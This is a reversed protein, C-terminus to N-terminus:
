HSTKKQVPGNIIQNVVDLPASGTIEVRSGNSSVQLNQVFTELGTGLRQTNNGSVAQWTNVLKAITAADQDSACVVSMRATLGDGWDLRYLVARVPTLLVKPDVKMGTGAELWPAARNAAARGTAMGWQPATGELEGEWSAFQQNSDLAPAKGALVDILAKIDHLRGFLASSSSLFAFFLDKRAGGSGFPYLDYGGYHQYTLQRTQFYQHIRDPDFNGWALGFFAELDSPDGRWGLTVESVDKNPDTGMARLFDEFSSLQPTLLRQQIAGYDPLTRLQALNSYALQETDAPFTSLADRAASQSWLAAPLLLAAALLTGGSAAFKWSMSTMSDKIGATLLLSAESEAPGAPREL